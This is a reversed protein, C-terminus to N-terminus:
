GVLEAMTRLTDVGGSVLLTTVPSARWAELDDRIKEKPGILAVQEVLSTPVLAAAQDKKGDLYLDQVQRAVDGYGMRVFVEHHFNAEKAGMGGMYLALMPRLLDAAQDVDPHIVVPCTALIEFEEPRRRAGPRAFGEALAPRYVDAHAPAFFLPLWGDAIEAALAVNKPGEAGLVIPLDARLPHVISRLPKGLGTGGPYPLPYHPGPSTVPAERALVQRVIAVYERTRALPQAFPQGYWGEVVQPGSVGLGLVARGGSLHDLTLAAMAAATPTRASLQCIATGLRLRSTRSGWWALPTLADSGYAESTWLSDFGLREAEAVLSEVGSPPKAGWYGLQLGLKLATM